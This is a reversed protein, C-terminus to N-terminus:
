KEKLIDGAEPGHFGLDQLKVPQIRTPNHVECNARQRAATKAAPVAPKKVPKPASGRSAAQRIGLSKM